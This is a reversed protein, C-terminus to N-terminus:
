EVTGMNRRRHIEPEKRLKFNIGCAVCPFTLNGTMGNRKDNQESKVETEQMLFHDSLQQYVLGIGYGPMKCPTTTGKLADKLQLTLAVHINMWETASLSKKPGDDSLMGNTIISSVNSRDGIGKREIFVRKKKLDRGLDEKRIKEFGGPFTLGLTKALTKM